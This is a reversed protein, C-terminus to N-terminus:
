ADLPPFRSFLCLASPPPLVNWLIPVILVFSDVRHLMVATPLPLPFSCSAWLRKELQEVSADIRKM